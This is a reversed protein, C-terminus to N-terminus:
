SNGHRDFWFGDVRMIHTFREEPRHRESGMVFRGGRIFVMGATDGGEAPLGSYATCSGLEGTAVAAIAFAGTM